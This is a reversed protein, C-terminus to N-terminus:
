PLQSARCTRMENVHREGDAAPGFRNFRCREQDIGTRRVGHDDRVSGTLCATATCISPTTRMDVVNVSPCTWTAEMVECECARGVGQQQDFPYGRRSWRQTQAQNVSTCGSPMLSGSGGLAGFGALCANRPRPASRASRGKSVWTTCCAFRRPTAIATATAASGSGDMKTHKWSGRPVAPGPRSGEFGECNKTARFEQLGANCMWEGRYRFETTCWRAFVRGRLLRPEPCCGRPSAPPSARALMVGSPSSRQIRAVCLAARERPAAIESEGAIGPLCSGSALRCVLLSACLILRWLSVSVGKGTRSM